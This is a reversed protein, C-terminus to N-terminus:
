DHARRIATPMHLGGSGGPFVDFGRANLVSKFTQFEFPHHLEAVICRVRDLWAMSGNFVLREAGEIDMKLIDVDGDSVHDDLIRDISVTAVTINGQHSLGGGWAPRTGDFTATGCTDAVAAEVVVAGIPGVNRKLIALNSPMPEVCILRANPYISAFYLSTLGVNAGLDVVTRAQPVLGRLDYCNTGFVEHLVFFDGGMTRLWVDRDRGFLNM